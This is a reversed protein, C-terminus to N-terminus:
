SETLNIVSETLIRGFNVPFRFLNGSFFLTVLEPPVAPSPPIGLLLAATCAHASSSRPAGPPPTHRPTLRRPPATGIHPYLLVSAM